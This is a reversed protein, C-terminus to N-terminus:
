NDSGASTLSTAISASLVACHLRHWWKLVSWSRCASPSAITFTGRLLVHSSVDFTMPMHYLWLWPSSLGGVLSDEKRLLPDCDPRGHPWDDTGGLFVDQLGTECPSHAHSICGYRWVTTTCIPLNPSTKMPGHTHTQTQTHIHAIINTAIQLSSTEVWLMVLGLVTNICTNYACVCVCVYDNWSEESGNKVREGRRVHRIQWYTGTFDSVQLWLSKDSEGMALHSFGFYGLIWRTRIFCSDTSEEPEQKNKFKCYM